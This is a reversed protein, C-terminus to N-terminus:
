LNCDGGAHTRKTVSFSKLRIGGPFGGAGINSEKQIILELDQKQSWVTDRKRAASLPFGGEGWVYPNRGPRQLVMGRWPCSVGAENVLESHSPSDVSIM